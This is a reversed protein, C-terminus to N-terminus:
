TGIGQRASGVFLEPGQRGLLHAVVLVGLQRHAFQQLIGLELEIRKPVPDAHYETGATVALTRELVKEIHHGHEALLRGLAHLGLVGEPDKVKVAVVHQAHFVKLQCDAPEHASVFQRLLVPIQEDLVDKHYTDM